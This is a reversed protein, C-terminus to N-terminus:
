KAGAATVLRTVEEALATAAEPTAAEAYVRVVDETGSPRAFARAGAGAAAVAKDIQGQLGTPSVCIAENDADTVFATRDPVKAKMQLSPVDSYLALWDELSWGRRQLALSVFLLASFADGVAQNILGDAYLLLRQAPGLSAKEGDAASEKEALHRLQAVARPSFLVAGHGNAEFYVSVDFRTVAVHHLHKVGTKAYATRVCDGLTKLYATSGGNAYATQVVGITALGHASQDGHRTTLMELDKALELAHLIAIRDGDLLAVDRAGSSSPLYYVIRDADGDLSCWASAKTAREVDSEAATVRPLVREKQIYDAGCLSNLKSDGNEDCANVDNNVLITNNKIGYKDPITDLLLKLQPAGVGHACDVALSTEASPNPLDDALKCYAECLCNHYDEVFSGEGANSKLVLWHLQPTTVVGCVLPTGGAAEIGKVALNALNQGSTRTDRGVLVRPPFKPQQGGTTPTPAIEELLRKVDEVSTAAAVDEMFTEWAPPAMSGDVACVKVGNDGPPNHSATVMLGVIGM